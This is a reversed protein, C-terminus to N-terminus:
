CHGCVKSHLENKEEESESIFEDHFSMEENTAIYIYCSHKCCEEPWLKMYMTQYLLIKAITPPAAQVTRVIDSTDMQRKYEEITLQKEIDM